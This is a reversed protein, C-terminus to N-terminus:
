PREFICSEGVNHVSKHRKKEKPKPRKIELCQLCRFLISRNCLKQSIIQHTSWNGFLPGRFCSSGSPYFIWPYFDVIYWQSLLLCYFSSFVFLLHEVMDRLKIQRFDTEFEDYSIRYWKRGLGTHLYLVHTNCDHCQRACFSWCMKAWSSEKKENARIKVNKDIFIETVKIRKM